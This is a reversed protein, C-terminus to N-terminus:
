TGIDIAFPRSGSSWGCDAAVARERARFFASTTISIPARRLQSRPWPCVPHFGSALNMWISMSGLSISLLWGM